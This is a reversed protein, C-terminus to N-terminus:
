ADRERTIEVTLMEGVAPQVATSYTVNSDYGDSLTVQFRQAKGGKTMIDQEVKTVPLHLKV